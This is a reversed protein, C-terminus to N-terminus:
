VDQAEVFRCRSEDLVYPSYPDNEHRIEDVPERRGVGAFLRNPANLVWAPVSSINRYAHVVGPPIVILRQKSEGALLIQRNGRTPSVQRADWLYVEFDGPGLFVFYDTQDRHEHPGRVVGPQTQSVYAMQPYMEVPLEDTRFLETLWGRQDSFCKLMRDVVGDIPGDRFLHVEAVPLQGAHRGLRSGKVLESVQISM